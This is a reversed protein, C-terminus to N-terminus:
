RRGGGGRGGGGGSRGGSRSSAGRSSSSRAGSGGSAGSFASGSSSSRSASPSSRSQSASPSPSSRSASPSATPRSASPTGTSPRAAASSSSPRQAATGTSPRAGASGGSPAARNAMSPQTSPTGGGSGYGRAQKSAASTSPTGSKSLRSQDPQWKQGGGAGTQSASTSRPNNANGGRNVNNNQNFNNNQNYNNNVNINVNNNYCGGHHWDCNNAIIAGVAVGAGFTLLPYPNVYYAPPPYYVVAPNYTPVYVTTTSAPQVQVITNTVVVVQQEITKETITNTVVVIQEPSTKLTGAKQAKLRLSQIADMVAKDNALFAEGLQMTWSLDDNMQKIVAPVRAVAKVNDDWPQADLNALNNTNAVFRAAQVIELPYVSAPLITAILPDPYLAIPALLKELEAAGLQPPASPPPAPNAAAPAPAAAPASVPVGPMETNTVRYVPYSTGTSQQATAVSVAVGFILGLAWWLHHNMGRGPRVQNEALNRM